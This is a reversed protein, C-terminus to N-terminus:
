ISQTRPDRPSEGPELLLDSDIARAPIGLKTIVDSVRETVTRRNVADHELKAIADINYQTPNEAVRYPLPNDM